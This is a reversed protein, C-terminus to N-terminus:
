TIKDSAEELAQIEELTLRWGISGVNQEAQEATKAGPIPLGGKCMVWNLAVQAPSKGGHGKGIETMLAILLPLDKLLTNYKRGRAGPPPTETTYKGTLLGQALPSYAILRVGTEKCRDLLGSREVRRDLLHYEVQNSTLPIGHKSLIKQAQQTQQIDYNSVGVTDTLGAKVAMALGEMYTDNSVVPSPWHLQYLYVRDLGLRELSGRLARVVSNKTFRYPIPFFKTAVMVTQGSSKIFLGLLHESRGGGYVEATDVLNVGAALSIRFAEAIDDETYGHGYQWFFRDGWAWAGLGMEANDLFNSEKIPQDPMNREKITFLASEIV